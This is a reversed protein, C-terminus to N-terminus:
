DAHGAGRGALAALLGAAVVGLLLGIYMLRGPLRGAEEPLEIIGTGDLVAVLVCGFASAGILLVLVVGWGPVKVREGGSM